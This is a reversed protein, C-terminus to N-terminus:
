LPLGETTQFVTYCSRVTARNGAEDIEIIPNSTVHRTRPTGCPYLIVLERLLRLMGTSDILPADKGVKIRAHLFLATAGEFDGGDLREAYQYLLNAIAVASSSM